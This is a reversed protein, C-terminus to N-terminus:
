DASKFYKFVKLIVLWLLEGLIIMMFLGIIILAFGLCIWIMTEYGLQRGFILYLCGLIFFILFLAWAVEKLHDGLARALLGMKKEAKNKIVM